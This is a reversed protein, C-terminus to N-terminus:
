NISPSAGGDVRLNAGTIFDAKTSAVYAVLDAVDEVRGIRNVTQIVYTRLVFQEVEARTALGQQRGVEDLWGSVGPTDIMGPSIANVTVGTNALAKAAGLAMNTMGAKASAYDALTGTPTTGIGSSIQIIRGWGREIMGPVLRTMLRM